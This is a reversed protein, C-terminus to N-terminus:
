PLRRRNGGAFLSSEIVPGKVGSGCRPWLQDDPMNRVLAGKTLMSQLQCTRLDFLKLTHDYSASVVTLSSSSLHSIPKQHARIVNLLAISTVRTPSGDLRALVVRSGVFLVHVIGIRSQHYVGILKNRELCAVELSGDACGCVAIYQRCVAHFLRMWKELFHRRRLHRQLVEPTYYDRVSDGERLTSSSITTCRHVPKMVAVAEIYEATNQAKLISRRVTKSILLSPCPLISHAVWRLSNSL